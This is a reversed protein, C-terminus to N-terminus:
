EAAVSTDIPAFNALIKHLNVADVVALSPLAEAVGRLELVDLDSPKADLGAASLVSQSILLQVALDKTKAELRSATNVTDGILTRPANGSAGIEGIVVEGLHLGMGIKISESGEARLDENFQELAKSIEQVAQLGARASSRSDKTEFLALFGDGLYKDVTGGAEIVAPVVSDFFRNLLFVVDYPLQGTTRATFGRIDLFLVALEQEDGQSAHARGRKGDPQFVRFVTLPDTPKIQCALRANPPADVARLSREEAPSPPHLLEAGTEVIVRCTTCRGRGGCLSTHPVGNTRSMELLTTGKAANIDPGDVYSVRVSGRRLILRRAVYVIFALLMLAATVWWITGAQDILSIFTARDPWNWADFLNVPYDPDSMAASVRRGEVIYGVIAFGPVLAALSSLAPLSRRWWNQGALWFHLGVCGHLWVIVMLTNQILGDPTKWILGILYGYEDNVDYVEHAFRTFVFHDVLFLPILLGLVTQTAEWAPMRLTGRRAVRWLALGGHALLAGYIVVSGLWSRTVIQRADQFANMADPGILGLGINLFHLLVYLMLILGSAIRIQTARTGRWLERMM